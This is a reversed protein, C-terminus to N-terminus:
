CDYDCDNRITIYFAHKLAEFRRGRSLAISCLSGMGDRVTTPVSVDSGRVGPQSNATEEPMRPQTSSANSKKTRTKKTSTRARRKWTSFLAMMQVMEIVSAIRGM